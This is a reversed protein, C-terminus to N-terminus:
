APALLEPDLMRRLASRARFLLVWLNSETVGLERCIDATELGDIERLAFARAQRPPLADLAAVFAVRFRSSSLAVEPDCWPAPPARWHGQEDFDDFDEGAHALPRRERERAAARFADTVKHLLIGAVWTRLESRREFSRASALATALTEQVVEEAAEGDRLRSRALRMLYPRLHAIGQEIPIASM